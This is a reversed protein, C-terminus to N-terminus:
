ARRRAALREVLEVYRGAEDLWRHGVSFEQAREALDRRRGPDDALELIAEALAAADGPDVYRVMEDTFYAETASTRSVIAPIGLAAYEMLKTPLIGDTFIDRRNPVIGIDARGIIEPLAATPVLATSLEVADGLGLEEIHREVAPLYEGRGHLILRVDRRERVSALADLLVDIGYRHTITGHYVLTLPDPAQRISPRRPAFLEEDPLNMVVDVKDADLGREILTTRWLKTVTLVHDAFAGSLREQWTVLRVALSDMRGGFRSAYFEPMLDHLDLLVKSGSLRPVIASFVLFDPVNHCQVVDYRRRLHRHAVMATAWAFFSLYEGLQVRLGMGRRRHVPLRYVGIGDIREYAPEGENRLCIVDVAHGAQVLARGEREVRIDPYYNDVVMCHRLRARQDM